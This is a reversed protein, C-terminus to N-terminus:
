ERLYCNESQWAETFAPKRAREAVLVEKSGSFDQFRSVKALPELRKTLQNNTKVVSV